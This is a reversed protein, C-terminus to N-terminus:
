PGTNLFAMIGCCTGRYCNLAVSLAEFQELRDLWPISSFSLLFAFSKYTDLLVLTQYAALSWDLVVETGDWVSFGVTSAALSLMKIQIGKINVIPQDLNLSPFIWKGFEM